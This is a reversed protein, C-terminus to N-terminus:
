TQTKTKVCRKEEGKEVYCRILNHIIDYSDNDPILVYRGGYLYYAPVYFLEESLAFSKQSIHQKNLYMKKVLAFIDQNSIDRYILRDIKQYLKSIKQLDREKVIGTFKEKVANIVNQQRKSRAFDSGEDGQAHRSRVYKLATKGDMRQLGKEFSVTEYRCRYEPDGNCLDNEKGELPFKEDTFSQEVDIDVGGLDDVFIEFKKFDIVIGYQIPFGSVASIESKALKLGGGGPQKEEGYAYASNIKDKLANSWIDRPIGITTIRNEKFDYNLVTISDSLNPGDHNEGAIGLLAITVQNDFTKLGNWNFVLKTISVRLTKTIFSYWPFLFIFVSFFFLIIIVALATFFKKM